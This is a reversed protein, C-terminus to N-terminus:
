TVCMVLVGCLLGTICLYRLLQPNITYTPVMKELVLIWKLSLPWRGWSAPSSAGKRSSSRSIGVLGSPYSHLWLLFVFCGLSFSFLHATDTSLEHKRTCSMMCPTGQVAFDTQESCKCSGTSNGSPYVKSGQNHNPRPAPFDPATRFTWRGETAPPEAILWVYFHYQYLM